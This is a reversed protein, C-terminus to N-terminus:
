SWNQGISGYAYSVHFIIYFFPSGALGGRERGERGMGLGLLVGMGSSLFPPSILFHRTGRASHWKMVRLCAATEAANM